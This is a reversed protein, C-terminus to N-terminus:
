TFEKKMNTTSTSIHIKESQGTKISRQESSKISKTKDGDTIMDVRGYGKPIHKVFLKEFKTFRLSKSLIINIFATMDVLIAYEQLSKLRWQYLRRTREPNYISSPLSSLCYSLTMKFDVTKGTKLSYSNLAGLINRNVEADKVSGDKKTVRIKPM